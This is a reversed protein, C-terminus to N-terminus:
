AALHRALCLAVLTNWAVPFFGLGLALALIVQYATYEGGLAKVLAEDLRTRYRRSWVGLWAILPLLVGAALTLLLMAALGADLGLERILWNALPNLEVGGLRLILWTLAVDAVRESAWAMLFAAYVRRPPLLSPAAVSSRLSSLLRPATGSM